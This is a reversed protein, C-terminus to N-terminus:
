SYKWNEPIEVWPGADASRLSTDTYRDPPVERVLYNTMDGPSTQYGNDYTITTNGFRFRVPQVKEGDKRSICFRM